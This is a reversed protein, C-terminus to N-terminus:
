RQGGFRYRLNFGYMPPPVSFFSIGIGFSNYTPAGNPAVKASTVNTAFLDVDFAGGMLGQWKAYVNLLGYPAVELSELPGYVLRQKEDDRFMKSQHHYDARFVIEGYGGPAPVRYAASLDHVNHPAFAFTEGAFSQGNDVFRTYVPNVYAFSYNLELGKFPVMSLEFEGGEVRAAGANVIEQITINSSDVVLRQINKYDAYFIAFNTRLPASGIRWDKKLGLEYDTVTEPQFPLFSAANGPTDSFGGSRYGRRTALYVLSQSDWKYDLSVNYTPRGFTKEGTLLCDGGVAGTFLCTVGDSTRSIDGKRQDVTYRGGVTASLGELWPLKQTGQFFGSYSKSQSNFDTTSGPGDFQVTHNTNYSRYENFYFLGTVWHLNDGLSVGQVQFEESFNHGSDFLNYIFYEGPLGVIDQAYQEEVNRYGLINKLTIAGLKWTATDSVTATSLTLPNNSVTETSWFYSSKQAQLQRFALTPDPVGLFPAFQVVPGAPNLADTNPALATSRERDLSYVFSNKFDNGPRWLASLRGSRSNIYAQNRFDTVGYPLPAADFVAPGANRDIVNKVWGDRDQYSFAARVAFTEGIPINVAGEGQIGNGSQFFTGGGQIYAEFDDTPRKTNVLIAGGTTNRGFLTGQPGRLVQVNDMDYFGLNTGNQLNIPVDNLYFGVAADSGTNPNTNGLGRITIDLSTPSNAPTIALGPVINTLDTMDHVGRAQLADGAIATVSVPVDQLREETRRATVIVEELATEAKGASGAADAANPGSEAAFLPASALMLVACCAAIGNVSHSMIKLNNGGM